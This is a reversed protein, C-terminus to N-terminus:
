ADAIDDAESQQARMGLILDVIAVHFIAESGLQVLRARYGSLWAFRDEVFRWADEDRGAAFLYAALDLEVALHDPYPAIASEADLGLSAMLDRLYVAADSVYFGEVKGFPHTSPDATWEVYLSEIPMASAPLGGTFHRAGFSALESASPPAYLARVEDDSLFEEFPTSHRMASAPAVLEPTVGRDQLLRRASALFEEWQAPQTLDDWEPEDVAAFCRSLVAFVEANEM